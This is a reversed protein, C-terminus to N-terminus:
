TLLSFFDSSAFSKFFNLQNVLAYKMHMLPRLNILFKFNTRCNWVTRDIRMMKAFLMGLMAETETQFKEYKQFKKFKLFM